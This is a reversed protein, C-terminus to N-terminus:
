KFIITHINVQKRQKFLWTEHFRLRFFKNALMYGMLIGGISLSTEIVKENM